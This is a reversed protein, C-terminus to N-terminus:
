APLTRGFLRFTKSRLFGFKELITNLATNDELVWGAEVWHSRHHSQSRVLEEVLLVTVAAGLPTHRLRRSVGMLMIRHSHFRHTLARWGLRAWGTIGPRPAIGETLEFLNPIALMTGIAIGDLEVTRFVLKGLFGFMFAELGTLDGPALPMFGWNDSWSDNYVECMLVLDRRITRRTPARFVLGPLRAMLRRAKDFEDVPAGGLDLRWNHLDHLKEYGLAEIHRQLYPPHWPCMYIPEGEAGAILLGPQENMDLMCPGFVTVCGQARLWSEAADVLAAVVLPDDVADLCGFMGAGQPIGVPQNVDVQASIRGVPRGDQRALFYCAKGRKWFPSEKPSLLMRSDMDLVPHFGPLAQYLVSPLGVFADLAPGSSVPEIVISHTVSSM